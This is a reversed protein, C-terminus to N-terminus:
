PSAPPPSLIPPPPITKSTNPMNRPHMHAHRSTCCVSSRRVQSASAQKYAEAFARGFVRAGTFVIQSIIRHAQKEHDAGTTPAHAESARVHAHSLMGNASTPLLPFSHAFALRGTAPLFTSCTTSPTARRANEDPCFPHITQASKREGLRVSVDDCALEPFHRWALGAEGGADVRERSIVRRHRKVESKGRDSVGIELRHTVRGWWDNDGACPDARWAPLCGAAVRHRRSQHWRAGGTSPRKQYTKWERLLM